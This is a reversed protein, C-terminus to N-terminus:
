DHLSITRNMKERAANM